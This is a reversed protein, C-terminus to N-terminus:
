PRVGETGGLDYNGNLDAGFNAEATLGSKFCTYLDPSNTVIQPCPDTAPVRNSESINTGNTV